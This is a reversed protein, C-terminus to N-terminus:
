ALLTRTWVDVLLAAYADPSYGRAALLDFYDPSNM